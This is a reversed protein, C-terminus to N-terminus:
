NDPQVPGKQLTTSGSDYYHNTSELDSLPNIFAVQLEGAAKSFGSFVVALPNLSIQSFKLGM